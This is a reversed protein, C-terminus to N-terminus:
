GEFIDEISISNFADPDYSVEYEGEIKKIIDVNLQDLLAKNQNTVIVNM